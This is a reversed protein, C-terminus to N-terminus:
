KAREILEEVTWPRSRGNPLQCRSWHYIRLADFEKVDVLDELKLAGLAVPDSPLEGVTAMDDAGAYCLDGKAAVLHDELNARMSAQLHAHIPAWEIPSQEGFYLGNLLRKYALKGFATSAAKRKSFLDMAFDRLSTQAEFEMSRYTKEITGGRKLLRALDVSTFTGKWRGTPYYTRGDSFYPLPGVYCTDPVFVDCEAIFLTDLPPLKGDVMVRANGPCPWTMASIIASNLDYYRASTGIGVKYVETRPSAYAKRAFANVEASMFIAELLYLRRYLDMSTEQISPQLEGGLDLVSEEFMTLAKYLILCNRENHERLVALPASFMCVNWPREKGRLTRMEEKMRLGFPDPPLPATLDDHGCAPFNPCQDNAVVDLGVAVGLMSLREPFTQYSDLFLWSSEGKSVRIATASAGKFAAEIVYEASRKMLHELFFQSDAMGALHAFYWTGSREERLAEDFFDEIHRLGQYEKGDYFGLLTVYDEKPHREIDFVAITRKQPPTTIRSLM